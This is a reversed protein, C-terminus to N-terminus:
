IDGACSSSTAKSFRAAVQLYGIEKSLMRTAGLDDQLKSSLIGCFFVIGNM